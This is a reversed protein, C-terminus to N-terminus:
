QRESSPTLVLLASISAAYRLSMMWFLKRNMESNLQSDLNLLLWSSPHIYKSCLKFTYADLDGRKSSNIRKDKVALLENLGKYREDFVQDAEVEFAAIAKRVLEALDIRQEGLFRGANDDSGLVYEAWFLLEMLSRTILALLDLPGEATDYLRELQLDLYKTLHQRVVTQNATATPQSRSKLLEQYVRANTRVRHASYEALADTKPM